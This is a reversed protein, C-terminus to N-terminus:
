ESAYDVVHVSQSIKYYQHHKRCLRTEYFYDVHKLIDSSFIVM